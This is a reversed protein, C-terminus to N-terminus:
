SNAAAGPLIRNTPKKKPPNVNNIPTNDCIMGLSEVRRPTKAMKADTSDIMPAKPPKKMPVIRPIM